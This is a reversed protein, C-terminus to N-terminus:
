LAGVSAPAPKAHGLAKNLSLTVPKDSLRLVSPGAATASTVASGSSTFTLNISCVFSFLTPFRNSKKKKEKEKKASTGNRVDEQKTKEEVKFEMVALTAAEDWYKVFAGEVGGVNLSSAICTEDQYITDQVLQFSYPHAFSAAVPRDSIRFGNPHIQPSM